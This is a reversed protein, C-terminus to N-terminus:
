ILYIYKPGFVRRRWASLRSLINEKSVALLVSYLMSIQGRGHLHNVMLHEITSLSPESTTKTSSYIFSRLQLYKFHHKGPLNFEDKLQTFSM